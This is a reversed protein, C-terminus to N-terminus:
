ITGFTAKPSVLEGNADIDRWESDIMTYVTQNDEFGDPGLAPLLLCYNVIDEEKYQQLDYENLEWRHYFHGNKEYEFDTRTLRCMDGMSVACGMDGNELGIVSLPRGGVWDMALRAKGRYRQYLMHDSDVDDMRGVVTKTLCDMAKDRLLNRMVNASWNVHVGM